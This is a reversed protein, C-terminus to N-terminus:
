NQGSDELVQIHTYSCFPISKEGLKRVIKWGWWILVLVPIACLHSVVLSIVVEQVLTVIYGIWLWTNNPKATGKVLAV